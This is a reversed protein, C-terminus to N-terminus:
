DGMDVGELDFVRGPEGVVLLVTEDGGRALEAHGDDGVGWEAFADESALESRDVLKRLTIDPTSNGPEGFLQQALVHTDDVLELLKRLLLPARRPLQRQSPHNGLSRNRNRPGLLRLPELLVKPRPVHIQILLLQRLNSLQYLLGLRLAGPSNMESSSTRDPEHQDVYIYRHLYSSPRVNPESM